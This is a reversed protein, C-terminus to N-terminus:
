CPCFLLSGVEKTRKWGQYRTLELAGFLLFELATLSYTDLWYEKSGAEFWKPQVGLIEQASDHMDGYTVARGLKWMHPKCVCM